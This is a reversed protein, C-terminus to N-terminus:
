HVIRHTRIKFGNGKGQLRVFYMGDAESSEMFSGFTSMKIIYVYLCM